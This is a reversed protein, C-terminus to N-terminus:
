FPIDIWQKIDLGHLKRLQPRLCSEIEELITRKESDPRLNWERYERIAEDGLLLRRHLNVSANHDSNAHYGCRCAFLKEVYGFIIEPQNSEDDRKISYRRGLEGCRSCVQSTGFPSVTLLRLGNDKAVEKIRDVLQGRNFEILARNIGREREADPLLSALLELVLVDARPFPSGTKKSLTSDANLAFNVIARAGKKFRDEGIHTVHSQLEFHSVENHVPRGRLRRLSRLERKHRALHALDPGESWRGPHAGKCEEHGIWINHSRLLHINGGRWESLTAFGLNRIGLDVACVILGEPATFKKRRKGSKAITDTEDWKLSKAKETIAEDDINCTFVLFPVGSLFTGDDNRRIHKFILKIGSIQAKRVKNIQRDLFEYADKEKEEGKKQGKGFVTNVKCARFDALRPDSKFQINTWNRPFEGDIKPGTLLLLDVSGISGKASPLVLNDYGSPSTQPANFVFWRPHQIPHPLTFTPRHDFGDPNRKSKRRRVYKREYEGHLLDLTRLEPNAKWFEQAEISIRKSPRAKQIRQAAKEPVSNIQAMGGRWAALGPNRRLWELYKHWRERRKTAPGGAEKEFQEFQPRLALYQQHETTSEWEAKKHLWESHRQEWLSVLEDHGSIIAVVERCLMQELVTPLGEFVIRKDYLLTGTNTLQAAKDAWVAGSIEMEEGNDNRVVATMKRATEPKWNKKSVSNLLYWADRSSRALIFQGIIQYLQQQEKTAGCEGRRMRFLISLLELLRENFINHTRWLHTLTDRNCIVRSQIARVSM